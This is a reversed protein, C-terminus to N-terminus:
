LKPPHITIIYKSKTLEFSLVIHNNRSFSTPYHHSSRLFRSLFVNSLKGNKVRHLFLFNNSINLQYVNLINNEKYLEQKRAFKREHFIIRVAYKQQSKYNKLYTRNTSCWTANVYNLHLWYTLLLPM